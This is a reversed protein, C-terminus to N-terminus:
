LDKGLRFPETIAASFRSCSCMFTMQSPWEGKADVGRSGDDQDVRAEAAMGRKSSALGANAPLWDRTQQFGIGRKSSALLRFRDRCRGMDHEGMTVVIMYSM